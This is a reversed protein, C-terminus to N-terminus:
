NDVVSAEMGVCCPHRRTSGLSNKKYVIQRLNLRRMMQIMHFILPTKDLCRAPHHLGLLPSLGLDHNSDYPVGFPNYKTTIPPIITFPVDASDLDIFNKETIFRSNKHSIIKFYIEKVCSM